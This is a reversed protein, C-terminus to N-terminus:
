FSKRINGTFKNERAGDLKRIGHVYDVSAQLLRFNAVASANWAITYDRISATYSYGVGGSLTLQSIPYYKFGLLLYKNFAHSSNATGDSYMLTENFELLKRTIGTKTFYSYNLRQEITTKYLTDGKSYNASYSASASADLNRSHIYRLSASNSISNANDDLTDRSGHAYRLTDSVSWADNAFSVGSQVESVPSVGIVDTKYIDESLTLYANLRPKPNWTVSLATVSQYSDSGVDAASIGRPNLYQSLQTGSNRTPGSFPTLNGTTFTNKQRAEFRLTNSPAYGGRLQVNQELFNSTTAANSTASNKINYSAGLTVIRSYRNTSTTELGGSLTVYDALSTKSSEVDFSQSLTFPSRKFADVRYGVLINTFRSSAGLADIDHNDRFATRANWSMDQNVAGAAYLPLTTQYSLKNKEDKYRKFTSFTRANWYKREGTVYLNLNIDDIANAQYNSKRKSLQLDTSVKIWNSFDVWRRAMYQDVTGLQIENEVYNNNKNLYDDYLTHRYHFWNDKKNLSVFALRSLRNDVPSLSRLDRNVTDKYDLLIMPFHRLIENYGNTMGNKVGAVLTAGTEIHIGDNIGTAQDRYGFISAFNQMGRGRTSTITNRSMDRSFATLRFPVEKPDLNIEGKYLLHGRTVNYNETPQTSSKFTTDLATWNYGLSIDYRGVRSNYIPGNSSYLLSYNQVLSNSSMSISGDAHGDYAIYTLSADGSLRASAVSSFLLLM